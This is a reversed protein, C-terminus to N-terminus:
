LFNCCKLPEGNPSTLSGGLGFNQTGGGGGGGRCVKATEGWIELIVISFGSFLTTEATKRGLTSM